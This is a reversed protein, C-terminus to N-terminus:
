LGSRRRAAEPELETDFRIAVGLATLREVLAALARRPDLHGEDPFFLGKRFRGALDPELSAM